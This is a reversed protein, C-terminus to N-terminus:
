NKACTPSTSYALEIKAITRPDRPENERVEVKHIETNVGFPTQFNGFSEITNIQRLSSSTIVIPTSLEVTYRWCAKRAYKSDYYKDIETELKAWYM